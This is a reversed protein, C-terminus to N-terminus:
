IMSGYWVNYLKVPIEKPIIAIAKKDCSSLSDNM